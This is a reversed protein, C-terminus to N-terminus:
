KTIMNRNISQAFIDDPRESKISVAVLLFTIITFIQYDTLVVSPAQLWLIASLIVTLFCMQMRNLVSNKFVQIIKRILLVLGIVAVFGFDLLLELFANHLSISENVMWEGYLGHSGLVNRMLVGSNGIGIGLFGSYFMWQVSAIISNIRYLVSTNSQMYMEGRFMAQIPAVISDKWSYGNLTVDLADVIILVIIFALIAPLLILRRYRYARNRIELYAVILIQAAVGLLVLKCDNIVLLLMAIPIYALMILPHRSEKSRFYFVPITAAIVAGYDNPNNLTIPLSSYDYHLLYMAAFVILYCVGVCMIFSSFSRIFCDRNAEYITVISTIVVVIGFYLVLYSLYRELSFRVGADNIYCFFLSQVLALLGIILAILYIRRSRVSSILTILFAVPLLIRFLNISSSGLRLLDNFAGAFLFVYLFTTKFRIDIAM